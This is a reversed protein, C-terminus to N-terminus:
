GSFTDPVKKPRGRARLTSSLGLKETISKIWDWSGFPKGRRISERISEAVQKDEQQNIIQLYDDEEPLPWADLLKKKESDGYTRRWLSSWRWDQARKVLKARLPNREVYRCLQTFYQDEEVPFSKFRGQYLHGGGINHYHSHWRQTHTLTLWHMFKSINGDKCSSLVLHWHNPMIVYSYVRLPHKLKVEELIREFAEYDEDDHFIEIRANSRNIVHYIVDACSQRPPRGM